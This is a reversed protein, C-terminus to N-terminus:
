SVTNYTFVAMTKDFESSFDKWNLERAFMRALNQTRDSQETATFTRGSLGCVFPEHSKSLSCRGYKEDLMFDILPIDDPVSAESYIALAWDPATFMM